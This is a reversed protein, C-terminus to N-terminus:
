KLPTLSVKLQSTHNAPIKTEFGVRITGPNKFDYAHPPENSWIKMEVEAGRGADAKLLMRQGDKTLEIENKGIVKADAPTVMIWTVNAPKDGTALQDTVELNDEKDLRITRIAQKVSNAFVSSLDVEAGKENRTQFTRTIPAFSKVLHREGNITLTNHAINSLRFVDWRQGNQSMNWLDVGKSELTIYSQMGLDMAWRVGDREFIFSGADMHAHSTEPSGGKIGLYTDKKSDWGSRYIFVPTDGRNFWFNKTPRTINKMDFRSCFVLLSPLLRDEAFPIKPNNLYQRELWLLSLDKMKGAFWFMMMNCEAKVPSDSFCFCDGGPATMYQMFRSSEMFGPAQSLGNDTGFASELAAILMVQFSTGYGWYGFGEPYGGDPGYGVMAQPNTAMCKEIIGKSVDPNDEYLALAGYVLGGNCVSNWNNKATYFWANRTNKAADFGKEIIAKRLIERTEPQLQDYLWDYGIAVAMVMEGVDLFHTPNWDTFRSVSLMEQEARRAYKEEGTMRYAYSLYYIRKLAIRSIALLRKGEKIRKVPQETLTQDCEKLIRQHVAALPPNEAVAKRIAQEGGKPLLLRPHPAIKDYDFPQVDFSQAFVGTCGFVWILLLLLIKKM